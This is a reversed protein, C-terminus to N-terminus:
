NLCFDLSLSVSGTPKPAEEPQFRSAADASMTRIGPPTSRQDIRLLTVRRRGLISADFTEPAPVIFQKKEEDDKQADDFIFNFTRMLDKLSLGNFSICNENSDPDQLAEM